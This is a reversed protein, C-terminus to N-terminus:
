GKNVVLGLVEIRSTILTQLSSQLVSRPVKGLRNVMLLGDTHRALLLSDAFYLPPSDYIVLDFNHLCSDMLNLM